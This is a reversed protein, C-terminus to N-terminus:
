RRSEATLHRQPTAAAGYRPLRGHPGLVQVTVLFGSAVGAVVVVFTMLPWIKIKM